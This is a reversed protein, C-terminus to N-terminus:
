LGFKYYIGFSFLLSFVPQHYNNLQRINTPMNSNNMKITPDTFFCDASIKVCIDEGFSHRLALGGQAAFAVAQSVNQAFPHPIGANIVIVDFEATRIYTLGWILKFDINTKKNKLPLSYYPGLLLNYFNYKTTAEAKSSDGNFDRQYGVALSDLGIKSVYHSSLSFAGAIAFRKNFFWAGELAANYGGPNIFGSKKDIYVQEALHGLLYNYGITAGVFYHRSNISDHKPVIPTFSTSDQASSITTLLFCFALLVGKLIIYKRGVFINKKM